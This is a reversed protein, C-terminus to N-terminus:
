LYRIECAFLLPMLERIFAEKREEETKKKKEVGHSKSYNGGM